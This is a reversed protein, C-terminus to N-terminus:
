ATEETAPTEEGAEQTAAYDAGIIVTVDVDADPATEELIAGSFFQQALAEADVRSKPHYFLTTTEYSRNANGITLVDYGADELLLRTDDALGSVSTGNLVQISVESPESVQPSARTPPPSIAPAVPATPSIVAGPEETIAQGDSPFAKSLVFIGLAVALAVLAARLVATAM